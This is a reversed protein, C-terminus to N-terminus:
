LKREIVYDILARIAEKADNEPMDKLENDFINKAKQAHALAESKAYDISGYRRMLELIELVESESKEGRSKNMIEVIRKKEKPTCHDFLHILMLTRKGEWIDGATEKGYEKEDAVLNLVDDQIQFAKGLSVGFDAMSELHEEPADAIIGGVRMPTICTYWATKKKIMTYYDDESVDWKKNKVWSLELTQGETTETIMKVFADMVHLTKKEGLKERNGLLVEWMKIHLADGANIALPIGYIRHLCPKGRREDSYDEIDDHILVWNHFMELAAASLLADEDSGGYAECTLICLGPRLGKGGRSPYDQIMKYHLIPEKNPLYKMVERDVLAKKEALIKKVDM